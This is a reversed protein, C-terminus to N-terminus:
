VSAFAMRQDRMSIKHANTTDSVITRSRRLCNLERKMTSLLDYTIKDVSVDGIKGFKEFSRNLDETATHLCKLARMRGEENSYEKVTYVAISWQCIAISHDYNLHTLMNMKRKEGGFDPPDFMLTASEEFPKLGKQQISNQKKEGSISNKHSSVISSLLSIAQTSRGVEHLCRAM